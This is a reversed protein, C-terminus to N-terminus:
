DFGGQVNTGHTCSIDASVVSLTDLNNAYVSLLSNFNDGDGYANAHSERTVVVVNGSVSADGSDFYADTVDQNFVITTVSKTSIHALGTPHVAKVRYNNYTNPGGANKQALTVEVTWCEGSAAYVGEALDENALVLPKVYERM